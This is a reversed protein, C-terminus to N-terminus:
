RGAEDVAQARRPGDTCGQATRARLAELRQEAARRTALLPTDAVPATQARGDGPERGSVMGGLAVRIARARQPRKARDQRLCAEVLRAVHEPTDPRRTRLPVPDKDMINYM